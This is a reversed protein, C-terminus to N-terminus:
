RSGSVARAVRMERKFRKWDSHRISLLLDTLVQAVGIVLLVVISWVPAAAALGFLVAAFPVIKSVIAGSAHMWARRRPPTRLYSAYDIKFGPQPRFPPKSYWHTFRIGSGIGVVYHALGHTAGILAGAGALLVWGRWEPPTVFTAAILALGGSTGLVLLVLGLPVPFILPVARRFAERDIVAVRDAYREVLEPRRKVAEVAKWFGLAKLDLRHRGSALERECGALTQEIQSEDM